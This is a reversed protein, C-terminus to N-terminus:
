DVFEERNKREETNDSQVAQNRHYKCYRRESICLKCPKGKKTVGWTTESIQHFSCYGDVAKCLKCPKGNNTIGCKSKEFEEDNSRFIVNMSLNGKIEGIPHRKVEILDIENTTISKAPDSNLFISMDFSGSIRCVNFGFDSTIPYGYEHPFNVLYGTNINFMNMYYLLQEMHVVTLTKVAKLEIIAQEKTKTQILLDARRTGVDVGKYCLVVKAEMQVEVGEMELHVKLARQYTAEIHHPGLTSYILKSVQPLYTSLSRLDKIRQIGESKVNRVTELSEASLEDLNVTVNGATVEQSGIVDFAYEEKAQTCNKTNEM